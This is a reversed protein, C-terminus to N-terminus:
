NIKIKKLPRKREESNKRLRHTIENEQPGIAMSIKMVECKIQLRPRLEL